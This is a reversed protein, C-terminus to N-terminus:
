GLVGGTAISQLESLPRWPHSLTHAQDSFMHEKVGCAGCKYTGGQKTGQEFQAAPHDGTFFRLTDHVEIGTDTQVPTPLDLLCNIREKVLAAQDEVSSSGPSLLYVEPQEVISQISSITTDPYAHRYEEDTFFVIPDYMTHVTVLIFGMKLITTHDHWMCLLRTRQFRLLSECLQQHSM